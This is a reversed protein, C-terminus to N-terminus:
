IENERNYQDSLDNQYLVTTQRNKTVASIIRNASESSSTAHSPDNTSSWPTLSDLGKNPRCKKASYAQFLDLITKSGQKVQDM